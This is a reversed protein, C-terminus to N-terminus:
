VGGVVVLPSNDYFYFSAYFRFIKTMSDNSCFLFKQNAPNYRVFQSSDLQSMCRSRRVSGSSQLTYKSVDRKAVGM